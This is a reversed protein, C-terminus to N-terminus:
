CGLKPQKMDNYVAISLVCFLFDVVIKSRRMFISKWFTSMQQSIHVSDLPKVDCGTVPSKPERTFFLLGKAVTYV